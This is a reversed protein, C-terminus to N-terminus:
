PASWFKIKNKKRKTKYEPDVSFYVYRTNKIEISRQEPNASLIVRPECSRSDLYTGKGWAFNLDKLPKESFEIPCLDILGERLGYLRVSTLDKRSYSEVNKESPRLIPLGQKKRLKYLFPSETEVDSPMLKGFPHYPLLIGRRSFQELQESVFSYDKEWGKLDPTKLMENMTFFGQGPVENAFEIIRKDLNRTSNKYTM